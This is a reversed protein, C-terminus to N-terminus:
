SKEYKLINNKQWAVRIKERSMQGRKDGRKKHKGLANV